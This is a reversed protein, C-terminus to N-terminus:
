RQIRFGKGVATPIEEIDLREVDSSPPGEHCWEVFEMVAAREGNVNIEVSGDDRNMVWGNVALSDAKKKTYYRFGVGQVIGYVQIKYSVLADM